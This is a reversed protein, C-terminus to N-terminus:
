SRAPGTSERVDLQCPLVSDLSESAEGAITQILREVAKSGMEFLPQRISTLTPRLEDCFETSDFGIVSLDKPVSLGYRPATRIIDAALGDAHSMLATHRPGAALYEHLEERGKRVDVIDDDSVPLGARSMHARFADLRAHSEVNMADSEIAFGIKSHGFDVLHQVALGIGQANDCIVTPHKGGYDASRAHIIVVPVRSADLIALNSLSPTISYWVLGDFRGDSIAEGPNEGLLQPCLAVSYDHRFAGDVIGDM